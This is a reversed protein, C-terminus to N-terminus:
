WGRAARRQCVLDLVRPAPPVGPWYAGQAVPPAAQMHRAWYATAADCLEQWVTRGSQAPATAPQTQHRMGGQKEIFYEDVRDAVHRGQHDYLKTTVTGIVERAM